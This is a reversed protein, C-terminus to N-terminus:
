HQIHRRRACVTEALVPLFCVIVNSQVFKDNTATARRAGTSCVRCMCMCIQIKLSYRGKWALILYAPKAQKTPKRTCRDKELEHRFYLLLQSQSATYDIAYVCEILNLLFLRVFFVFVVFVVFAIKTSKTSNLHNKNKPIIKPYNRQQKNQEIFQQHM